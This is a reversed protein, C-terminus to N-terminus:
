DSTVTVAAGNTKLFTGDAEAVRLPRGDMYKPTKVGFMDLVTPGLDMIHPRDGELKRNCFMVGPVHSPDISHDGSWAKENDRFVRDTIDGIAAEWSVRYGKAYGMIIDPADVKYPGAYIKHANLARTVAVDGTDADILGTIKECLEDRLAAADKPDVIGQGERGKVNLWIGALGLCYARTQSWDV